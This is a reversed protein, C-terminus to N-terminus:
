RITRQPFIGDVVDFTDFIGAISILSNKDRTEPDKQPFVLESPAAATKAFHICKRAMRGVFAVAFFWNTFGRFDSLKNGGSIFGDALSRSIGIM